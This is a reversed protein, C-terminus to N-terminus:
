LNNTLLYKNENDTATEENLNLMPTWLNELIKSGDGSKTPHFMNRRINCDLQVLYFM